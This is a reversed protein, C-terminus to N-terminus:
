CNMLLIYPLHKGSIMQIQNLLWDGFAINKGKLDNNFYKKIKPILHLKQKENVEMVANLYGSIM